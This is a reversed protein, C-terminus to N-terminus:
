IPLMRQNQWLHHTSMILLTLLPTVQEPLVFVWFVFYLYIIFFVLLETSKNKASKALNVCIYCFTLFVCWQLIINAFGYVLSSGGLISSYGENYISWLESQGPSRSVGSIIRNHLYPPLEINKLLHLISYLLPTLIVFTGTYIKPFLYIMKRFVFSIIAFIITSFAAYSHVPILSLLLILIVSYKVHINKIFIFSVIIMVSILASTYKPETSFLLVRKFEFGLYNVNNTDRLLGLSFPNKYDVETRLINERISMLPEFSNLENEYFIIIIINQIIAMFVLILSFVILIKAIYGIRLKNKTIVLLLVFLYISHKMSIGQNGVIIEHFFLYVIWIMVFQIFIRWDKEIKLEYRGYNAKLIILYIVVFSSITILILRHEDVTFHMRLGIFEKNIFYYAIIPYIFNLKVIRSLKYQYNSM